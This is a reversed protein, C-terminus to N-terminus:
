AADCDPPSRRRSRSRRAVAIAAAADAPERCLVIAEPGATESVTLFGDDFRAVPPGRLAEYEGAGPLVVDGAIASQLARWHSALPKGVARAEM